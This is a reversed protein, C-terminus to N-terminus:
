ENFTEIGYAHVVGDKVDGGIYVRTGKPPLKRFDFKPPPVIKWTGDDSDLDKDDRTIIFSSSATSEIVGRFVGQPLHSDHVQEYVKGILPLQDRDAQDLLFAHLPTANVLLSGPIVVLMILGFIRLVSIRYGFEFSRVLWELSLLLMAVVALLTWPFLTILTILGREGFGLLFQQGSARISFFIFSLVFLSLVLTIVALVVLLAVQLVFYTKPRKSVEGKQIKELVLQTIDPKTSM